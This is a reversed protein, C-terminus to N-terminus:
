KKALVLEEGSHDDQYLSIMNLDAKSALRECAMNIVGPAFEAGANIFMVYPTNIKDIDNFISQDDGYNNEIIHIKNRINTQSLEINNVSYSLEEENNGNIIITIM